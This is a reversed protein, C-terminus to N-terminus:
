TQRRLRLEVETGEPSSTLTATGGARAMRGRISEAIGHAEDPVAETVSAAEGVIDVADGLESRVGARFLDHDDVLVVRHRTSM